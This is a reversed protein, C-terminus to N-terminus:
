AEKEFGEKRVRESSREEEERGGEGEGSGLNSPRDIGSM